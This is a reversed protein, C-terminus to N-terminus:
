ETRNKFCQDDRKEDWASGHIIYDKKIRMRMLTNSFIDM